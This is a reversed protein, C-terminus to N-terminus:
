CNFKEVEMVLKIGYKEKVKDQIEYAIQLYDDAKGNGNNIIFNSHMDSVCVDNICYGRYGIGDILKWAFGDEPNRFCSGASPYNLPQTKKRRSLRDAMLEEILEPSKRELKLKAAIVVWRPHDHLISHRYSFNMEENSMWVLEDDKLVLVELVVDAMSGKYAGANMYILGGICGPIGSAFELCSLGQKALINALTPALVGAEVYVEDNHIEYSNLQKLCIVVGDYQSEGCILNSGNGVVKFQIRNQKLFSIIEKVDDVTEPMVFHSIRGGMKVTTIDKFYKDDSYQGHKELFAKIM